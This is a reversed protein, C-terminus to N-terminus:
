NKREYITRGLSAFRDSINHLSESHGIFLTSKESMIDAYRSFLQRQTKADFYIVVNRCFIVDFPGKMPWDNLLNLQKFTILQAVSEKIKVKEHSKDISFFKKFKEPINEAREVTYIAEKAKNVVNSDLDTALVKVDWTSLAAFSKVVM